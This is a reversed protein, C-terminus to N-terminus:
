RRRLVRRAWERLSPRPGVRGECVSWTSLQYGAAQCAQLQRQTRRRAAFQRWLAAPNRPNSTGYVFLDYEDYTVFTVSFGNATTQPYWQEIYRGIDGRNIAEALDFLQIQQRVFAKSAVRQVAEWQDPSFAQGSEELWRAQREWAERHAEADAVIRGWIADWNPEEQSEM